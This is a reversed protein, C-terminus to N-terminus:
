SVIKETVLSHSAWSVVHNPVRHFSPGNHYQVIVLVTTVIRRRRLLAYQLFIFNTELYIACFYFENGSKTSTRVISPMGNWRKTSQDYDIPNTHAQRTWVIRFVLM